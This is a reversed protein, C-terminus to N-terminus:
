GGVSEYRRLQLTWWGLAAVFLLAGIAPSAAAVWVPVPLDATHGTLVAVPLYGCFAIPIVFVFVAGALNPLINLPYNGFTAMLDETWEQWLKAAPHRLAIAGLFTQIAAELLMAGIVAAVLYAIRGPNWDMTLYRAAIAFMAGAVALDGLIPIHFYNLMVQRYVPLPRLLFADIRGEVALEAIQRVGMFLSGALTHGASRVAAILLVAGPEWGGMGPFRTILVTAFAVVTVQWIMGVVIMFLFDARYEIASKVSLKLFRLTLM